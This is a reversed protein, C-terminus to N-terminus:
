LRCRLAVITDAPPAASRTVELKLDNGAGCKAADPVLQFCHTTAAADCAPLATETTGRTDFAVCDAGAPVPKYICPDGVMQRIQRAIDIMPPGFQLQCVSGAFSHREFRTALDHVRVAPDARAIFTSGSQNLCSYTLAPIV